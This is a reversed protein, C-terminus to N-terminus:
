QGAGGRLMRGLVFLLVLVAGLLAGWFIKREMAGADPEESPQRPEPGFGMEGAPESLVRPALLSLDYRPPPLGPQGYLLKLSSGAPYFFRLRVAPLLLRPAELPLPSNDGEDVLLDFRTAPISPVELTLEPAPTEPDAHRWTAEAVTREGSERGRLERPTTSVDVLRVQREFVRATTTLVLRAAPLSPHPLEVRYRSLSPADDKKTQRVLAPLVLDLPEDLRELVYPVQRGQADAIRLDALGPSRSLVAANLLLATLGSAAPIERQYRFKAADVPAGLAPLPSAAIVKERELERVDGTGWHAASTGFRAVQDRLAELDYRPASADRDGFRATLPATDKAEFYIWPLPALEATVGMLPLPPNNGDDVTLEVELGQPLTVPIRLDSAAVGDRVARRLTAEGLRVPVIESGGQTDLRGETVTAPRLLPGTSNGALNLELAVLPLRAGPLRLRFRSKGPESSRREVQLLIRPAPGSDVPRVLRAEVKEPLPLRASSEDNWTLRLYRFDGAPLDVDLRRLGEEPLDFLTGEPVLLSWHSRDGGGELRFRKLFPAHLGTIRVRDISEAKGLTGFDVEFGSEKKTTAIPLIQGRRWEPERRPPAVLLYPTERGAADFLRLDALGGRFPGLEGAGSGPEYVPPAAGRLLADDLELRNPGVAGPLVQREFRFRPERGEAGALASAALLATLLLRGKM